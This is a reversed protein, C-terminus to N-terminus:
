TTFTEPYQPDVYVWKESVPPIPPISLLWVSQFLAPNGNLFFQFFLLKQGRVRNFVEYLGQIWKGGFNNQM